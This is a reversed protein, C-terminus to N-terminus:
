WFQTGSERSVRPMEPAATRAVSKGLVQGGLLPLLKMDLPGPTDSIMYNKYIM